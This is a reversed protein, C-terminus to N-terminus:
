IGQMLSSFMEVNEINKGGDFIATKLRPQSQIYIRVKDGEQSFRVEIKEGYTKWTTGRIATIENRDFWPVVKKVGKMGKLAMISKEMAGKINGTFSWERKQIVEFSKNGYKKFVRNRLLYDYLAGIATIMFGFVFGGGLGYYLGKTSGVKLGLWLGFLVGWSFSILLFFKLMRLVYRM